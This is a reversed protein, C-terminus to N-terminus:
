WYQRGTADIVVDDGRPLTILAGLNLFFLSGLVLGPLVLGGGM